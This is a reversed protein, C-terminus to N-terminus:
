ILRCFHIAGCVAKSYHLDVTGYCASECIARVDGYGKGQDVKSEIVAAEVKGHPDGKLEMIESQVVIADQLEDM